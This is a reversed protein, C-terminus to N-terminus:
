HRTFVSNLIRAAHLHQRLSTLREVSRFFEASGNLPVAGNHLDLPTM